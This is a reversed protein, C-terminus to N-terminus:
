NVLTSPKDSVGQPLSVSQSIPTPNNNWVFVESIVDRLDPHCLVSAIDVVNSLRSWNLIVATTDPLSSTTLQIWNKVASTAVVHYQNDRHPALVQEAPHAGTLLDFYINLFAAILPLLVAITITAASKMTLFLLDQLKVDSRRKNRWHEFEARRSM